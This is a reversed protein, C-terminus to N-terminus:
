NDTFIIVEANKNVISEGIGKVNKLEELSAFDGHAERYEVIRIAKSDGVGDLEAALTTADLTNVNVGALAFSSFLGGALLVLLKQYM